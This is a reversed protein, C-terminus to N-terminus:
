LLKNVILAIESNERPMTDNPREVNPRVGEDDHDGVVVREAEVDLDM